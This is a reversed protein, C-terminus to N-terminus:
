VHPDFGLRGSSCTVGDVRYSFALEARASDYTLELAATQAPRIPKQFKLGVLRRVPDPLDFCQRGFHEVWHIQVVGPLVPFGPFHGEFYHLEPPIRLEFGAQSAGRRASLIQPLTIM